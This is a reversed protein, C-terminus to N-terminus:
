QEITNRPNEMELIYQTFDPNRGDGWKLKLNNHGVTVCEVAPASPPLPKTTCKHSQSYPGVGVANM